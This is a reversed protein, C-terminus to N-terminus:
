QEWRQLTAQGRDHREHRKPPKVEAWAYGYKKLLELANATMKPAAMVGRVRQTGRLEQVRKVYRHLQSVAALGAAYRKCEVVVLNGKGDHGFVDIFGVDTQEERALPKFDPSVLSPNDRLMDSMDAESGSLTQKQGDELRRHLCEYVRFIEVDIFEKALKGHLMLHREHRELQLQAGAKLYNIPNGNTPQHILLVGDQKLIILRDGRPLFAEARGSYTVQCQCTFALLAHRERAANFEEEFTRLEM